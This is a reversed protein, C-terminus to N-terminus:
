DCANGAYLDAISDIPLLMMPRDSDPGYRKFGLKTYFEATEKDIAVLTMAFAGAMNAIRYVKEMAHFMLLRGIGAGQFSKSVGIYTLQVSPFVDPNGHRENEERGLDKVDGTVLRLTYFGCPNPNNKLHASTTRTKYRGHEKQSKSKLFNTVERIGCDFTKVQCHDDLPRIELDAPDIKELM